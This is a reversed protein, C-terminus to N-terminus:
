CHRNQEAAQREGGSERKWRDEGGLRRGGSREAEGQLIGHLAGANIALLNKRRINRGLQRM